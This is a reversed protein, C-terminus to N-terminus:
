EGARVAGRAKDLEVQVDKVVIVLIGNANARCIMDRTGSGGPFAILAQADDAMMQHRMKARRWFPESTFDIGMGTLDNPDFKNVKIKRLQAWIEGLRDAGTACGSVVETIPLISRYQDLLQYDLPGVVYNRGGAIITKM